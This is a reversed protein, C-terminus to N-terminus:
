SLACAWRLRVVLTANMGVQNASSSWGQAGPDCGRAPVVTGARRTHVPDPPARLPGIGCREWCDPHHFRRRACGDPSSSDFADHLMVNHLTGLLERVQRVLDSVRRGALHRATDSLELLTIRLFCVM